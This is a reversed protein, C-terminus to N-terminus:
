KVIVFDGNELYVNQELKKGKIVDNWNFKLRKDGRMIVIDKKNAFENLGGALTLAELVTVPVVLPFQGPRGVQGTIYYKRSRVSMVEVGVVPNNVLKAYEGKLKDGLDLPTLGVVQVEGVLPITVYGDPRVTVIGSLEPERWVYVKLVDEAGIKYTKPDVPAALQPIAKAPDTQEESQPPQRSPNAAGSAPEQAQGM